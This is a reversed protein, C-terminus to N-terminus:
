DVTQRHAVWGLLWKRENECEVLTANEGKSIAAIYGVICEGDVFQAAGPVGPRRPRLCAKSLKFAAAAADGARGPCPSLKKITLGEFCSSCLLTMLERGADGELAGDAVLRRDEEVFKTVGRKVLLFSFFWVGTDAPTVVRCFSFTAMSSDGSRMRVIALLRAVSLFDDFSEVM